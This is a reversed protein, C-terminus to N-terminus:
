NNLELKMRDLNNLKVKIFTAISLAREKAQKAKIGEFFDDVTENFLELWRNFHAAKLRRIQHLDWHANFTDRKYKGVQFLASEWFDYLIPLHKSLDIVAVELFMPALLDDELVKEYFANVLKVIDTRSRIDKKENM